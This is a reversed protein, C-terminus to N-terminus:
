RLQLGSYTIPLHHSSRVELQFFLSAKLSIFSSQVDYYESTSLMKKTSHFGLFSVLSCLYYGFLISVLMHRPRLQRWMAILVWSENNRGETQNEIWCLKLKYPNELWGLALFLLEIVQIILISCSSSFTAKFSDKFKPELLNKRNLNDYSEYGLGVGGLRPLNLNWALDM